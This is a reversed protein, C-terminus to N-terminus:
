KDHRVNSSYYVSLKQFNISQSPLKEYSGLLTKVQLTEERSAKFFLFSDDAFLLHTIDPAIQSVRCGHILGNTAANDLSNSLGENCLLFMYPLCHDKTYAEGLFLWVWMWAIWVWKTHSQLWMCWLEIIWKSWFNMSIM